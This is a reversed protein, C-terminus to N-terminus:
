VSELMVYEPDPSLRVVPAPKTPTWIYVSTTAAPHTTAVSAANPAIATLSPSELEVGFKPFKESPFKGVIMELQDGTIVDRDHAKKAWCYMLKSKILGRTNKKAENGHGSKM